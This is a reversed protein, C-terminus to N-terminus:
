RDDGKSEETAYSVTPGSRSFVLEGMAQSHAIGRAKHVYIRRRRGNRTRQFQIIIWTDMISSVGAETEEDSGIGPTLSTLLTTIGKGKMYDLLRTLMARVEWRGGIPTFGTIPDLVVVEPQLRDILMHARVLHEELGFRSPRIPEIRLLGNEICPALDIGVSGLNRVIQSTSEEFALFLSPRGDECARRAFGGALTSKGTGAGGSVLVTSGQYYGKGALMQDLGRIGTSIFETPAISDLDLSTVPLMSIGNAGVLFPYEDMGHASGRYKVVRLRRKAIDGTVRHDMSIVCDSVYAELGHRTLTGEGKESTVIATIGKEKIWQFIRSLEYRLNPTDSFRSFLADLSDLVLRNAAMAHIAQELRMLLADLTFEGAELSYDFTVPISEIRVRRATVTEAFGFGASAFNTEIDTRKEDFSVFLGPENYQRAGRCVFEMALVTKGCGPGGCVLTPRGRPLGGHLVEDLGQIGTPTKKLQEM